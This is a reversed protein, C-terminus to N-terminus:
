VSTETSFQTSKIVSLWALWVDSAENINQLAFPIWM